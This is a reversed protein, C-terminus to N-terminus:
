SGRIFSTLRSLFSEQAKPEIYLVDHQSDAGVIQHPFRSSQLSTVGDEHWKYTYLQTKRPHKSLYEYADQNFDSAFCNSVSLAILFVLCVM